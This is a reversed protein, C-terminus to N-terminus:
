LDFWRYTTPRLSRVYVFRSSYDTTYPQLRKCKSYNKSSDIFRIFFLPLEYQLLSTLCNSSRSRPGCPYGERRSPTWAALFTHLLLRMWHWSWRSEILRYGLSRIPYRLGRFKIQKKIYLNVILFYYPLFNVWIEYCEILKTLNNVQTWIDHNCIVRAFTGRFLPKSLQFPFTAQLSRGM